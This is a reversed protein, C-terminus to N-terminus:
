GTQYSIIHFYEVKCVPSCITCFVSTKVDRSTQKISNTFYDVNIWVRDFAKDADMFCAYLESGREICFNACEHLIFSVM